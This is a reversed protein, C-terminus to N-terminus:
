LTVLELRLRAKVDNDIYLAGHYQRVPHIESGPFVASLEPVTGDGITREELRMRLWRGERDREVDIRSPTKLGYGFVSVAPVSSWPPLEAHFERAIDIIHRYEAESWTTETLPDIRAGNADFIAEYTPALTYCSPFTVLVRRLQNALFGLPGVKGSMIVNLSKVSGRHPGGLMILREVKDRRGLVEICYRSVLSGMSHAIITVPGDVPLDQLFRSLRKASERLDQRWDYPFDFLDRGREYGLEDRLYAGLRGYQDMSFLGPIVVIEDVLKRPELPHADELFFDSPHAILAKLNPWLKESGRWLESGMVGPVIVVPRRAAKRLPAGALTLSEETVVDRFMVQADGLRLTDGTRLYHTEVRRPGIFTGNASGLDRAVWAGGKLELALHQRSIGPHDIVVTNAQSRGLLVDAGTLPVEFTGSPRFIVLRPGDASNVAVEHAADGVVTPMASDIVTASAEAEPPAVQFTILSDGAQLTEGPRLLADSVRQGNVKLGNASGLDVMHCSGDRLEIRAHQRSIRPDEVVVANIESRGLTTVGPPIRYQRVQQNPLRVILLGESVPADYM